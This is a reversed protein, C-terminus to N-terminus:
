GNRKVRDIFRENAQPSDPQHGYKAIVISPIGAIDFKLMAINAVIVLYRDCRLHLVDIIAQPYQRRRGEFRPRVVRDEVEAQHIAVQHLGALQAAM